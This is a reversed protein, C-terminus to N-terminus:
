VSNNKVLDLSNKVVQLTSRGQDRQSQATRNREVQSPHSARYQRMYDPHASRWKQSSDICTQKYAPDTKIKERHYETKRRRQCERQSCVKQHPARGKVEFSRLCYPCRLAVQKM